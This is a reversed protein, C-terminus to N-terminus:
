GYAGRRNAADGLTFKEMFAVLLAVVVSTIGLLLWVNWALAQSFAWTDGAILKSSIMVTQGMKYFPWSFKVGSQIVDTEM